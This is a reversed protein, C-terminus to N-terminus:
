ASPQTRRVLAHLRALLEEFAIPKVLYDDAGADLAAVRDDVVDRASLMVLCARVSSERLVRCIAAAELDPPMEDFVIAHYGGTRAMRFADEGQEALDVQWGDEYLQSLLLQALTAEGEVVLVRM